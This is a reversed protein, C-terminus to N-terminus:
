AKLLHELHDLHNRQCHELNFLVRQALDTLQKRLKMEAIIEIQRSVHKEGERVHRQVMELEIEGLRM